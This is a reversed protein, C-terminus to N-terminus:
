LPLVVLLLWGAWLVIQIVVLLVVFVIYVAFLVDNFLRM